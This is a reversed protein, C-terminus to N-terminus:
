LGFVRLLEVSDHIVAFSGSGDHTEMWLLLYLTVIDM